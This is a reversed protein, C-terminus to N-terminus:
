SSVFRNLLTDGFALKKVVAENDGNMMVVYGKKRKVSAAAFSHFGTNYGGHAILDGRETHLIQWGLAWSSKFEDNTKVHPRVMEALSEKKLRFADSPKPEIVAILFKAYDTPTAHLGGASGYRAVSPPNPKKKTLPKGARDHPRAAYKELTDNWLYGSSTMGLPTLVHTKMYADIDTACVKLGAEYTACDDPNVRGTLHTVVSQLYYYGEGSYRYQEGPTFHITLAKEKSRWNQFGSTHSLVHRATILDLRPDGDLMRQPTYKTLPTDLDIVGKDCLKLVAYAFVPKSMSGAEFVTENDVPAKSENDRVGFGRRWVLKGDEILAISLGPVKAEEILKPIEEELDAVLTQWGAFAKSRASVSSRQARGIFPVLSLGVAAQGSKALFKRRRM